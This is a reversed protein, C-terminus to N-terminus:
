LVQGLCETFLQYYDRGIETSRTGAKFFGNIEDHFIDGVRLSLGCARANNDLDISVYNMGNLLSIKDDIIIDTTEVWLIEDFHM